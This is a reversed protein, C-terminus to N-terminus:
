IRRNIIYLYGQNNDLVILNKGVIKVNKINGKNFNIEEKLVGSLDLSYLSNKCKDYFFITDKSLIAGKKDVALTGLNNIKKHQYLPAPPNTSPHKDLVFSLPKNNKGKFRPSTVPDGGSYDPFGYWRDKSIEYIYDTDGKVPRDGRDEMGGISVIVKGKSNFDIGKFNRIGYAFTETNGTKLNYIVISSNGPFHEPVVQGRINRTGYSSFPATKKDGFNLGSLVLRKPSVDCFFPTKKLWLNDSGVVSSNTASGITVFLYDNKIKILSHPYDGLNPIDEVIVKIRKNRLNYSYIKDSSAIYLYDKYYEISSINLDKKKLVDYSKGSNEIVQITNKYAIYYNGRSDVTFDRANKLGKYKLKCNINENLINVETNKYYSKTVLFSIVVIIGISLISKIINKM